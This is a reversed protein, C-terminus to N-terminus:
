SEEGFKRKFRYYERFTLLLAYALLGLPLFILIMTAVYDSGVLSGAIIALFLSGVVWAYTRGYIASKYSILYYAVILIM